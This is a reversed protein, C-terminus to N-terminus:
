EGLNNDHDSGGLEEDDNEDEQEEETQNGIVSAPSTTITLFLVYFASRARGEISLLKSGIPFKAAQSPVWSEGVDKSVPDLDLGIYKCGCTLAAVAVAHTGAFPDLVV